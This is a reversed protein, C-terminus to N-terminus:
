RTVEQDCAAVLVHRVNSRVLRVHRGHQDDHLVAVYPVWPSLSRRVLWRVLGPRFTSTGTFRRGDRLEVHVHSRATV